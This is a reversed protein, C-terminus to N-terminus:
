AAELYRFVRGNVKQRFNKGLCLEIVASKASGYHRAAASASEFIMGDDVCIVKRASKKPGLHAYQKFKEINEHGLDSLKKRHDESIKHDPTGMSNYEPKVLAILEQEGKIADDFSAYKRLTYFEFSDFGFERLAKIFLGSWTNRKADSRHNIKREQLTRSTVGIYRHGNIQNVAVYVISPKNRNKM